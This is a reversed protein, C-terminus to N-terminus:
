FSKIAVRTLPKSAAYPNYKVSSGISLYISYKTLPRLFVQDNIEGQDRSAELVLDYFSKLPYCNCPGHRITILEIWVKNSKTNRIIKYIM